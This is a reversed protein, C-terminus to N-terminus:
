TLCLWEESIKGEFMITRDRVRNEAERRWRQRDLGDALCMHRMLFGILPGWVTGWSSCVAFLVDPPVEHTDRTLTIMRLFYFVNYLSTAFGVIGLGVQCVKTNPLAWALCFFLSALWAGMACGLVCPWASQGISHSHVYDYINLNPGTWVLSGCSGALAGYVLSWISLSVISWNRVRRESSRMMKELEERRRRRQKEEERIAKQEQQLWIDVRRGFEEDVASVMVKRERGLALESTLVTVAITDDERLRVQFSEGTVQVRGEPYAVRWPGPGEAVEIAVQLDNIVELPNWASFLPAEEDMKSCATPSADFHPDLQKARPIFCTQASSLNKQIM